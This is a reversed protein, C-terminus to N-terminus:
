RPAVPPLGPVFHAFFRHEVNGLLSNTLRLEFPQPADSPAVELRWTQWPAQYNGNNVVPEFVASKGAVTGTISFGTKCRHTWHPAAQLFFADSVALFGGTRTPPVIGRVVFRMESAPVTIPPKASTASLRLRGINHQRGTHDLQFELASGQPCSLPRELEFVAVHRAGEAPDIGWGTQPKGDIAAEAPWGGFSTQAFDARARVIRVPQGGATVTFEALTFNGNVARGPGKIPLSDDPLTELRIATIASSPATAKIVYSDQPPNEGSALLSGDALKTLRAGGASRFESPELQNWVVPDNEGSRGPEAVTIPLQRNPEAFRAPIAQQEFKRDLAAPEGAPVVELLVIDFPRLALTAQAGHEGGLKAPNPWRRYVDWRKGDPLGWASNLELTLTSDRWVGNNIALFARKGDTCCYGYPEDKWPNGLIFRSNRFCEPRAKLLAIFDAMQRREDLSLCATDSWLQALLHGRSIDMIVSGQWAKNGIHSNWGWDSLWIGLTDWGLAPWDKLMWRGRDLRRTISDRARLTPQPSFSAGEMHMGVDFVTDAYQLWWPSLYYWYLMIFVDPCERDLGRYFEILANEIPEVSYDGPLHDHGSVSCTLHVNDFKVLRVGNKRLQHAYGEIYFRNAPETARCLGFKTRGRAPTLAREVAPNEAITWDGANGSDVWLGPLTGLTKLQPLIKTFGNPFRGADPTKLDGKPDTWFDISYYDWHLGSDRQGEAVKAINDLVFEETEWFSGDPKAGFPEFIALPKDHGRLVRRMRGQVHDRFARRAQGEGSVGYVAEMCEFSAGSPLKTGPLQRLAIERGQRMAFGAPHALGVFFQWGVYAPLGRKKGALDDIRGEFFAPYDPDAIEAQADTSYSGLRVNLLRNWEQGSRNTITVFKRLVPQKADWRYIVRASLKPDDAALEFVAEGSAGQKLKPKDVVRLKPTKLPQDPLGIDFEVEAGNGLSLTRGTLRNGWSVARLGDATDLTFAFAPSRLTLRAGDAVALCSEEVRPKTPEAARLAALPVLVAAFFVSLATKM